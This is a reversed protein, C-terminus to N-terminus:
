RPWWPPRAESRPHCWWSFKQWRRCPHALPRPAPLNLPSASEPTEPTYGWPWHLPQGRLQCRARPLWGWWKGLAGSSGLTWATTQRCCVSIDRRPAFRWGCGAGAAPPCPCHALQWPSWCVVWHHGLCPIGWCCASSPCQAKALKETVRVLMCVCLWHLTVCIHVGCYSHTCPVSDPQPRLSLCVWKCYAMILFWSPSCSSTHTSWLYHIHSQQLRLVKDEKKREKKEEKPGKQEM